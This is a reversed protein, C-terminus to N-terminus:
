DDQGHRVKRTGGQGLRINESFGAPIPAEVEATGMFQDKLKPRPFRKRIEKPDTITECQALAIFQDPDKTSYTLMRETYIKLPYM